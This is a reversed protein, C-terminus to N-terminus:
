SKDELVNLCSETFCGEAVCINSNRGLCPKRTDIDPYVRLPPVPVMERPVEAEYAISFMDGGMDRLLHAFRSEDDIKGSWTGDPKQEGEGIVDRVLNGDADVTYMVLPVKKNM